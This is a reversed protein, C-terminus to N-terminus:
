DELGVVAMVDDDDDDDHVQESLFSKKYLFVSKKYRWIVHSAIKPLFKEWKDKIVVSNLHSEVGLSHLCTVKQFVFCFLFM